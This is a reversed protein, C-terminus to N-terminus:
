YKQRYRTNDFPKLLLFYGLAQLAHSKKRDATLNRFCSPGYSIINQITYM